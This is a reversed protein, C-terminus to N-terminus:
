PGIMRCLRETGCGTEGRVHVTRHADAHQVLAAALHQRGTPAPIGLYTVTRDVAVRLATVADLDGHVAGNVDAIGLVGRAGFEM